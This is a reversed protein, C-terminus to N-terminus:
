GFNLLRRAFIMRIKFVDMWDPSRGIIEKIEKKSLTELKGDAELNRNKICEFEEVLDNWYKSVDCKIWIEGENIKEALKFLSQSNLNKYNVKRGKEKIPPASHTFSKSGKLYGQLYTGVGDADYAINNRAVEYKVALSKILDEIEKGDSKEVVKIDIVIYDDWVLVIFKDSGQFALDATIYKRGGQVHENYRLAAIADDEVLRSSDIEGEALYLAKFMFPPLDKKAQLVEEEELIGAEVADWATWKFYQYNKDAEAKLALQHGWNSKGKYNGIFKCKGKTATLTSRLAFWAEQTARTFEDFVAAQVDEGYLSDPNKASKFRIISGLPTEISLNGSSKTLKYLGSQAIKNWMRNLAIKAQDEVPAVWWFEQGKKIERVKEGDEYGHAQEFIWFIHSFTKGTKTSAEVVTFRALCYLCAKQYATLKPKKITFKNSM